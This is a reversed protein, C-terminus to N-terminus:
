SCDDLTTWQDFFVTSYKHIQETGRLIALKTVIEVFTQSITLM